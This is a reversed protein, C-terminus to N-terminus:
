AFHMSSFDYFYLAQGQFHTSRKNAQVIGATSTDLFCNVSQSTVAFDEKFVSNCGAYNRLDGSDHTRRSAASYVARCQSVENVHYLVSRFHENGAGCYYFRNSTFVYGLFLQTASHGVVASGANCMKSCFVVFIAQLLDTVQQAEQRGVVHFASRDYFGTVVRHTNIVGQICQKRIVGVLCIIHFVYDFGDYVVTFEIFGLLIPCGINDSAKCTHITLGYTDNCVLRFYHSAAQIDVCGVFGRTKNAEAISEVNRQQVQYVYRAEQRATVLFVATDDTVACFHQICIGFCSYRFNSYYGTFCVTTGIQCHTGLIQACVLYNCPRSCFDCYHSRCTCSVDDEFIIRIYFCFRFFIDIVKCSRVLCCHAAHYVDYDLRFVGTGGDDVSQLHQLGFTFSARCFAM